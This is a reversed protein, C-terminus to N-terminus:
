SRGFYSACASAITQRLRDMMAKIRTPNTQPDSNWPTDGNSAGDPGEAMAVPTDATEGNAEEVPPPAKAYNSSHGLSESEPKTCYIMRIQNPEPPVLGLDPAEVEIRLMNGRSAIKAKLVELTERQQKLHASLGAMTYDKKVTETNLWTDFFIASFPLLLIPLWRIWGTISRKTRQQPARSTM